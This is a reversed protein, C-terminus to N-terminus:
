DHEGDGAGERPREIDQKMRQRNRFATAQNVITAQKKIREHEYKPPQLPDPYNRQNRADETRQWNAVRLADIAAALAFMEASWALPGGMEMWTAAGPPLRMALVAAKRVTM